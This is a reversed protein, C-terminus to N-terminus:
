TEGKALAEAHYRIHRGIYTSIFYYSHDYGSRMNLELPYGRAECVELLRAIGLQSDLFPDDTGQEVLIPLESSSSEILKCTDWEDWTSRDAGLYALFAKQGWPYESPCAIPSFASVSCYTEPNKLAIMLAGHGGMSHGSLSRRGVIAPFREEILLPLEKTVYDYMHYHDAWPDQTANVYFGAGQGLDYEQDDPIAEGRPSTDPVVLILGQEAAYRQAGSKTIFNQETCTLGSLWYLVPCDRVKAQPPLFIGFKMKSHTVSAQHEWVEQWGDFCAYREVRRVSESPSGTMKTSAGWDM